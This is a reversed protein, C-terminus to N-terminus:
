LHEHLQMDVSSLIDIVVFLCIRSSVLSQSFHRFLETRVLGPHVSYATVNTGRLRQALTRTFMINALKSQSYAGRESYSEKSQLDAFDITGSRHARSSLTIIRAAPAEQIHSLLLNTLLFHGLHNVGFQLEFGDETTTYPPAM